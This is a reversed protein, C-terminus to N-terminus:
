NNISIIHVLFSVTKKCLFTRLYNFHTGIREQANRYFRANNYLTQISISIMVHRYKCSGTIITDVTGDLVIRLGHRARRRCRERRSSCYISTSFFFFRKLLNIRPQRVPKPSRKICIRRSGRRFRTIFRNLRPIQVQISHRRAKKRSRYFYLSIREELLIDRAKELGHLSM